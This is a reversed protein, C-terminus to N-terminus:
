YAAKDETNWALQVELWPIVILIGVGVIVFRGHLAAPVAAYLRSPFFPVQMCGPPISLLYFPSTPWLHAISIPLLSLPLAWVLHRTRCKKAKSKNGKWKCIHRNYKKDYGMTCRDIRCHLTCVKAKMVEKNTTTNSVLCEHGQRM